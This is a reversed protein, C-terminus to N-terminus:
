ESQSVTEGPTYSPLYSQFAEEMDVRSYGRKDGKSNHRPRIDYMSLYRAVNHTNIGKGNNWTIWSEDDRSNLHSVLTGSEIFTSGTEEFYERCAALLRNQVTAHQAKIEASEIEKAYRVLISEDLDLGQLITQLPLLGDALRDSHINLYEIEAYLTRLYQETEKSWAQLQTKLHNARPAIDRERVPKVSDSVGKRKMSVPLCRDALVPNVKGICAVVKPGYTKLESPAFDGDQRKCRIVAGDKRVSDCLIENLQQGIESGKRGLIQAEDILLTKISGNDISRYLAASSLNSVLSSRPTVRSILGLLTSKGCRMEPSTIALIPFYDWCETLWSAMVWISVVVPTIGPMVVYDTLYRVVDGLLGERYGTLGDSLTLGDAPGEHDQGEHTPDSEIEPDGMKDPDNSQVYFRPSLVSQPGSPTNGEKGRAKVSM